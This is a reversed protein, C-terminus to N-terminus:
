LNKRLKLQRIIEEAGSELEVEQSSAVMASATDRQTRVAPPSHCRMRQSTINSRKSHGGAKMMIYAGRRGKLNIFIRHLLAKLILM